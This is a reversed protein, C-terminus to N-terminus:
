HAPWKWQQRYRCSGEGTTNLYTGPPCASPQYSGSPCYGGAPCIAGYFGLSAVWPAEIGPLSGPASIPSGGSCYYGQDCLGTSCPSPCPSLTARLSLGHCLFQVCPSSIGARDCFRGPSCRPCEAVTSANTINGYTGATILHTRSDAFM